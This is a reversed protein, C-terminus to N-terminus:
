QRGGGGRQRQQLRVLRCVSRGSCHTSALSTHRAAAWAVGCACRLREGAPAAKGGRGDLRSLEWPAVAVAEALVGAADARGLEVLRAANSVYRSRPTGTHACWRALQWELEAAAQWAHKHQRTCVEVGRLNIRAFWKGTKAKRRVNFLYGSAKAATAISGGVMRHSSYRVACGRGCAWVRATTRCWMLAGGDVWLAGSVACARRRTGSTGRRRWRWAWMSAAWRCRHVWVVCRRTPRGRHCRRCRLWVRVLPAPAGRRPAPLTRLRRVVVPKVLRGEADVHGAAQLQPLNSVLESRAIGAGVRGCVSSAAAAVCLGRPGVSVTSAAGATWCGSWSWQLAGRKLTGPRACSSVAHWSLVL